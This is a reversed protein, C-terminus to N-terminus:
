GPLSFHLLARARKPSLAIESMSVVVSQGSASSVMLRKPVCSRGPQAGPGGYQEGYCYPGVRCGPGLSAGHEVIASPHILSTM